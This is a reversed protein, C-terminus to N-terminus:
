RGAAPGEGQDLGRAFKIATAEALRTACGPGTPRPLTPRAPRSPRRGGPSTRLDPPEQTECPSTRACRRGASSGDADVAQRTSARIPNTDRDPGLARQLRLEPRQGRARASGSATPTAPAARAPWAPCRVQGGGPLGPRHGPLGPGPDTDHSVAPDGREPLEVAPAVQEYLPVAARTSSAGAVPGDPAPRRGPRAARARRGAPAAQRSSRCRLRRDDPRSSRVGPLADRALRACRRSARREAVGARAAPACRARCRPSRSRRARGAPPRVRRATINFDTVLSKLQEPNRDLAQAATRRARQRLGLPRAAATASSADNVIARTRTPRSGTASRATSAGAGGGTSGTRRVRPAADPPGRAHRVPARHAGPRAAGADGDPQDPDHEGDGLEAGDALRAPRRRLLQGRPLHAPPDQGHRRQPDAPGEDDIEMTVLAGPATSPAPARGDHGQRRQRRRHAGAVEAQPQQVHPLGGQDTYHHRFPIRSPSARPLRVVVLVVIAILGVAFTSLRGGRRRRM